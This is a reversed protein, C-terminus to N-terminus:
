QLPQVPREPVFHQPRDETRVGAGGHLRGPIDADDAQPALYDLDQGFNVPM